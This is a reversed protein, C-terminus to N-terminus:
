EVNGFAAFHNAGAFRDAQNAVAIGKGSATKDARAKGFVDSDGNFFQKQFRVSTGLRAWQICRAIQGQNVGGTLAVALLSAQIMEAMFTQDPPHDATM